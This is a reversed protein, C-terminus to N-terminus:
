RFNHDVVAFDDDAKGMKCTGSLHYTTIAATRVVCELYRESSEIRDYQACNSFNPYHLKTGIEKFPETNTIKTILKIGTFNFIDKCNFVFHAKTPNLRLLYLIHYFNNFGVSVCKEIELLRKQETHNSSVQREEHM